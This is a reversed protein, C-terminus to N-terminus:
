AKNMQPRQVRPTQQADNLHGGLDSGDPLQLKQRVVKLVTKILHSILDDTLKRPQTKQAFDSLIPLRPQVHLYINNIISDLNCSEFSVKLM